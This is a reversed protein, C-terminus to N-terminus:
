SSNDPTDASASGSWGVDFSISTQDGDASKIDLRHRGWGVPASIKAAGDAPIDVSGQAIRKSSKIPEYSWHGDSNYWQYNTDIEYLSWEVGKRAVRSGDPAVAIAEFVAPQGEALGEDFDKKVGILTSKARLPLTVVREVTRGGPEAVDVIVKVELPKAAAGEPLDVSLDAHGKADTQIKADFQSSVATFEDDTLGGAYGLYGPIQSGEVAQLTIQGTVDLGAAPAGYLFKADVALEVPEGPTLIEAAPKVKVDLREPIYDELMFQTEGVSPGKPDVYAVIRWSGAQAGALLPLALSRGGLGQDAVIARKYEVGDPRLAVLTLPLGSQAEGRADRLLATVYVTEGSRYVGRETFLFADLAKPAERGSVGRDTLDFASQVLNLFGYDDARTAVLLGPSLGGTGRSLGPDFDVRGDAGTAKTALVENNRAVLKVEVGALPSADALSHVIAHVGDDGSLATLGLDSIVLWQTALMGESDDDSDPKAAGEGKWPRATIVYVGPDLKGVAELVPFDTVVDKNLESAVDMSGSWIKVGDQDAIEAARSSGIDKLFDDRQVTALLNRDGIRYVDIALKATNVTVLPAGQQGLRPLVYNKGTFHVQPARDRVYIEYDADKLLSEGVTSPLGQRIVIAYREGHKLGEVCLQQEETSVAGNAAGSVAVYPTFDTKRALPESFQFCVRPAASDNDVKYDTIRFGNKERLDEYTKGIDLDDRRDLSARYADLAPRWMERRAFLDGLLALAQAQPGPATLREYAAYAATAGRERLEYREPAQADDAKVALQALALWNAPDKPNGAIAAAALKGALKFDGGAAAGAAGNRLQEPSKGKSLAAAGSAEKRLTEALRVADSALFDRAYPKSEAAHAAAGALVLVLALLTRLAAQM